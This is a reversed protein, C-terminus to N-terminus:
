KKKTYILVSDKKYNPDKWKLGDVGTFTYLSLNYENFSNFLLPINYIDAWKDDYESNSNTDYLYSILIKGGDILHNNFKFVIDKIDNISYWNTLINSLWINDFQKHLDISAIDGMVFNPNVKKIKNRLIMYTNENCLYPNCSILMHNRYEDNSFLNKRVDIPLNMQLLDDWFLYSLYDISRLTDKIKNFIDKNFVDDNLKFVDPYDNFRFFLLYDNINLELIAAMKLYYYYKSFPNIDMLTLDNAGLLIANLLQDGSSGVTLLSKNYINFSNIYGSINETTFPYIKYFKKWNNLYTGECRQIALDLIESYEM